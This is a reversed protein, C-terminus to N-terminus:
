GGRLRFFLALEGTENNVAIRFGHGNIEFTDGPQLDGKLLAALIEKPFYFGLGTKRPELKLNDIEFSKREAKTKKSTARMTARKPNHESAFPEGTLPHVWMDSPTDRVPGHSVMISNLFGACDWCAEQSAGIDLESAIEMIFGQLLLNDDPDAPNILRPEQGNNRLFQIFLYQIIYSEGHLGSSERVLLDSARVVQCTGAPLGLQKLLKNFDSPVPAVRNQQVIYYVGKHYGVATTSQTDLKKGEAPKGTKLYVTRSTGSWENHIITALQDLKGAYRGRIEGIRQFGVKQQEGRRKMKAATQEEPTQHPKRARSSRRREGTGGEPTKEEEEEPESARERKHSGKFENNKIAAHIEQAVKAQASNAIEMLEEQTLLETQIVQDEKLKIIRRQIIKASKVPQSAPVRALSSSWKSGSAKNGMVDAERELQQEDNIEVGKAQLSPKVRGQKQQVVHWAEHPLHQEQGPGVHIDTGRTYALAEREAPKSSNYHVQVDDMSLGSLTEVGAKLSDPLGTSNKKVPPFLPIRDFSYALSRVYGFPEQTGPATQESPPFLVAAFPRSPQLLSRAPPAPTTALPRKHQLHDFTGM